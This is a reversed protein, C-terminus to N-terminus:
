KPKTATLCHYGKERDEKKLADVRTSVADKMAAVRSLQVDLDVSLGVAEQEIKDRLTEIENKRKIWDKSEILAERVELERM